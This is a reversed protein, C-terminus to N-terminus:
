LNAVAERGLRVLQRRTPTRRSDTVAIQVVESGEFVVLTGTTAGPSGKHTSTVALDGLGRVVRAGDQDREFDKADALAQKRLETITLDVGVAPEDVESAWSCLSADDTFLVEFRVDLADRLDAASVLDCPRPVNTAAAPVVIGASAGAALMGGVLGGVITRLGIM